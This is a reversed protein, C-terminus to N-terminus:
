EGTLSVIMPETVCDRAGFCPSAVPSLEGKGLKRTTCACRAKPKMSSVMAQQGIMTVGVPFTFTFGCDPNQKWAGKDVFPRSADDCSGRSRKATLSAHCHLVNERPPLSAQAGGHVVWCEAQSMQESTGATLQHM